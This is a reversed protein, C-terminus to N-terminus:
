ESYVVSHCLNVLAACVTVIKDILSTGSGDNCRLISVPITSQLITYKNKLLGIVREIHIRVKSIRQSYEVEDMSLQKKGHTFSPIVLKGGYIAFDDHIDFGRDALVVDGPELFQLFGSDMTILKDTARGGWCKSLFCIAGCPTIGLLFKATNHKKYNSYTKARAQYSYPRETFIETCDIICRAKPYLDKFIQPMNACCTERDPWQILFKLHIFMADVWAVFIKSVTANSIGFRYALDQVLLGLRLRMLTLLLRDAELLQDHLRPSKKIALTPSSLLLHSLVIGFVASTPLGTYFKVAEDHTAIDSYRFSVPYTQTDSCIKEKEATQTESTQIDIAVQTGADCMFQSDQLLLLGEAAERRNEKERESAELNERRSKVRMQRELQMQTTGQKRFSFVTPIYDIDSRDDVPKGSCSVLLLM